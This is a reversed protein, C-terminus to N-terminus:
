TKAFSNGGALQTKCSTDQSPPAIWNKVDHACLCSYFKEIERFNMMELWQHRYSVLTLALRLTWRCLKVVNWDQNGHMRQDHKKGGGGWERSRLRSYSGFVDDGVDAAKMVSWQFMLWFNLLWKWAPSWEFVVNVHHQGKKFWANKPWTEERSQVM